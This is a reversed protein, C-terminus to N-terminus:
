SLVNSENILDSDNFNSNEIITATKSESESEEEYQISSSEISESDKEEIQKQSFIEKAEKQLEEENEEDEELVLTKQKGLNLKSKRLDNPQIEDHLNQLIEHDPFQEMQAQKGLLGVNSRMLSSMEKSGM